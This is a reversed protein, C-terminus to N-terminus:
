RGVKRLKHSIERDEDPLPVIWYPYRIRRSDVLQIGRTRVVYDSSFRDVGRTVLAVRTGSTKFSIESHGEGGLEEFKEPLVSLVRARSDGTSLVVRNGYQLQNGAVFVVQNGEGVGVVVNARRWVTMNLSPRFEIKKFGDLKTAPDGLRFGGIALKSGKSSGNEQATLQGTPFTMLGFFCLGAALRVRSDVLAM